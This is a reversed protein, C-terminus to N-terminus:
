PSMGMDKKLKALMDEIEAIENEVKSRDDTPPEQKSAKAKAGNEYTKSNRQKNEKSVDRSNNSSKKEDSDSINLEKELFEVFEEGIDQLQLCACMISKSSLEPPVGSAVCPSTVVHTPQLLVPVWSKFMLVLKSKRLCVRWSWSFTGLHLNCSNM